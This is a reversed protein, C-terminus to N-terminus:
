PDVTRYDGRNGNRVVSCGGLSGRQTLTQRSYQCHDDPLECRNDVKSCRHRALGKTRTHGVFGSGVLGFVFDRVVVATSTWRGRTVGWWASGIGDASEQPSWAAGGCAVVVLAIGLWQAVQMNEALLILGIGAAVVPDLSMMVGFVASPIRRLVALEIANPVLSSLVALAAFWAISEPNMLRAADNAIVLPLALLGSVGMALALGDNGATHRGVVASSVIYAGWGAGAVAAFLVGSWSVPGGGDILLLVGGGALAVWLADRWRRSGILAITLPGLLDITVAMGLPIRHLAAYFCLNMAAMAAGLGTIPLLAAREVRLSPRWLLMAFVGALVIRACAVTTPSSTSFLHKAIVAGLHVSVMAGIVLLSTPVGVRPGAFRPAIRASADPVPGIAVHQEM